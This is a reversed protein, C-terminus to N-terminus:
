YSEESETHLERHHKVAEKVKTVFIYVAAGTMIAMGATKLVNKNMNIM